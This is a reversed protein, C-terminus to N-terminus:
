GAQKGAGHYIGLTRFNASRQWLLTGKEADSRSDQIDLRGFVYFGGLFQNAGGASLLSCRLNRDAMLM